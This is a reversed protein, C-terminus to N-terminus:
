EKGNKNGMVYQIAQYFGDVMKEVTRESHYYEYALKGMLLYKEKNEVCDLIIEQIQSFRFERRLIGDQFRARFRFPLPAKCFVRNQFAQNHATQQQCLM